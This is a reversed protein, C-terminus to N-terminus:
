GFVMGFPFLMHRGIQLLHFILGFRKRELVFILDDCKKYYTRGKRRFGEKKMIPDLTKNIVKTVDNNTMDNM